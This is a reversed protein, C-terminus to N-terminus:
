KRRGSPTSAKTPTMAPMGRKLLMLSWAEIGLQQVSTREQLALHRIRLQDDPHVLVSLNSLRPGDDAASTTTDIPTETAPPTMLDALSAGKKRSSM